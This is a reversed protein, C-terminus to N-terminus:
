QHHLTPVHHSVVNWVIEEDIGFYAHIIIDRLGSMKRWEIPYQQKIADHIHKAAEGIIELNRMTADFVLENQVFSERSLDKTYRMIKESSELMDALFLSYDRLM